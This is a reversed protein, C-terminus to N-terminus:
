DAAPPSPSFQLEFTETIRSAALTDDESRCPAGPVPVDDTPCERYCLVVYVSAPGGGGALGVSVAQRNAAVSLWQDLDACQARAVQIIRGAPDIALGPSVLVQSANTTVQLGCVTGYGHLTRQHQRGRELLYFQEQEFEDVGLVLGLSYNVRKQPDPPLASPPATTFNASMM